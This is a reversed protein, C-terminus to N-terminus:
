ISSTMREPIPANSGGLGSGFGYNKSRYLQDSPLNTTIGSPTLRKPTTMFENFLYIIDPLPIDFKYRDSIFYIQILKVIFLFNSM